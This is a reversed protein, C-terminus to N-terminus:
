LFWNCVATVPHDNDEDHEVVANVAETQTQVTLVCWCEQLGLAAPPTPTVHM